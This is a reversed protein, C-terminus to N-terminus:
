NVQPVNLLIHSSQNRIWLFDRKIENEAVPPSVAFETDTVEVIYHRRGSSSLLVQGVSFTQDGVLFRQGHQNLVLGIPLLEETETIPVSIVINIAFETEDVPYYSVAQWYYVGITRSEQSLSCAATWGDKAVFTGDRLLNQYIELGRQSVGQGDIIQTQHIAQNAERRYVTFALSGLGILGIVIIFVGLFNQSRSFTPEM